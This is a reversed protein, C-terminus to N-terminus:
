LEAKMLKQSSAASHLDASAGQESAPEMESFKTRPQQMMSREELDDTDVDQEMAKRKTTKSLQSM